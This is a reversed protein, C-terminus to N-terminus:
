MDMAINISLYGISSQFPIILTQLSKPIIQIESGHYLIPSNINCNIKDQELRTVAHATITNGIESIVSRMMEEFEQEFSYESKKKDMLMETLLQSFSEPFEYLIQGSVDGVIGVAVGYSSFLKRGQGKVLAGKEMRIGVMDNFVSILSIIFPNIFRIDMFKLPSGAM